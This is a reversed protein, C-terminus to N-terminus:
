RTVRKKEVQASRSIPEAHAYHPHYPSAAPKFFGRVEPPLPPSGTSAASIPQLGAVVTGIAFRQPGM